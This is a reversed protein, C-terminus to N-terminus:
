QRGERKQIEAIAKVASDRNLFWKGGNDTKEFAPDSHAIERLAPVMDAGGYDGLAIVTASRLGGNSDHLDNLIIQKAKRITDSDLVDRGRALAEVLMPIAIIRDDADNKNCRKLIWPLAAKARSAAEAASTRYDVWAANVMICAQRPDTWNAFSGVIDVLSSFYWSWEEEGPDEQARAMNTHPNRTQAKPSSECQEMNEKDLLDVLAAQIKASHLVDPNDYMQEIASTRKTWEQSQLKALVDSVGLKGSSAQCWCPVVSAAMSSLLFVAARLLCVGKGRLDMFIVRELPAGAEWVLSNSEM